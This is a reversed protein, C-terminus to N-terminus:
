RILSVIGKKVTKKSDYISKYEILYVYVGPEAYEGQYKGDWCSEPGSSTYIQQGWRNYIYMSYYEFECEYVSMFCENLGDSTPTFANPVYFYCRWGKTNLMIEDSAIGCQNYLM